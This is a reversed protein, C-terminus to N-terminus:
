SSDGKTLRRLIARAGRLLYRLTELKLARTFNRSEGILVFALLELNDNM